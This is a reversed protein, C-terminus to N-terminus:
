NSNKIQSYEGDKFFRMSPRFAVQEPGSPNGSKSWNENVIKWNYYEDKKLYLTKRGIDTIKDSAYDQTFNIMAYRETVFASVDRAKIEPRGPNQFVARKYEKFQNFNGRISDQFEHSHYSSIYNNFDENNWSELWNNFTDLLSKRETKWTLSNWLHIDHVIIVVTRNLEIYQSLNKLDLNAVVLCGRSDLGKDIRTEDNTSHLWIGGGTKSQRRDIPNPYDMAFAGVGYIEGDKGFRELLSQHPIFETLFYIGEPTRFDGQFTKDGAKKGSVMQFQKILQPIGQNNQYLYLTHTSKEALLIHHTYTDDMQYINIPMVGSTQAHTVGFACCFVVIAIPIMFLTKNARRLVPNKTETRLEDM